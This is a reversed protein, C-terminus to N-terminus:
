KAQEQREQVIRNYVEMRHVSVDQPANIGIKIQCGNVGLITLIIDDGIIIEEGIRRTLILM